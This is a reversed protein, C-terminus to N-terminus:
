LNPEKKLTEKEKTYGPKGLIGKKREKAGKNVDSFNWRLYL